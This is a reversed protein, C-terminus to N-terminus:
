TEPELRAQSTIVRDEGLYRFLPTIEWVGKKRQTYEIVKRQALGLIKGNFPGKMAAASSRGNRRPQEETTEKFPQNPEVMQGLSLALSLYLLQQCAAGSSLRPIEAFAPM